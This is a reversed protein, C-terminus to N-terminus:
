YLDTIVSQFVIHYCRSRRLSYVLEDIDALSTSFHCSTKMMNAVNAKFLTIVLPSGPCIVQIFLGVNTLSPVDM